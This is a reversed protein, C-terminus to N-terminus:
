NASQALCDITAKVTDKLQIWADDSVASTNPVVVNPLRMVSSVLDRAQYDLETCTSQIETFYKKFLPRNIKVDLDGTSSQIEILVDVKGRQLKDSIIKRIELEKERYAQPLKIKVDGYKSNLSRIEVTITRLEFENIVRGYGTMSYLM